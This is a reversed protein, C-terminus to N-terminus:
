LRVWRVDEFSVGPGRPQVVFLGVFLAVVLFRDRLQEVGRVLHTRVILDSLFGSGEGGCCFM